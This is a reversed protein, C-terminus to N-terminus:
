LVKLLVTNFYSTEVIEVCNGWLKQLYKRVVRRMQQILAISKINPRKDVKEICVEKFCNLSTDTFYRYM